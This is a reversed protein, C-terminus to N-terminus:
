PTILPVSPFYTQFKSIDNTLIPAGVIEAQAGIFFDPLFRDRPGGNTKYQRFATSARFLAESSFPLREISLEAIITIVERLTDYEYCFESFVVDSIILPGVVRREALSNIAWENFRSTPDMAYVLPNTDVFTTM